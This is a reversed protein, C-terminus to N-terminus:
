AADIVLRTVSSLKMRSLARNAARLIARWSRKVIRHKRRFENVFSDAGEECCRAHPTFVGRFEAAIVQRPDQFKDAPYIVLVARPWFRLELLTTM